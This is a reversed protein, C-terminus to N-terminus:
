NKKDNFLDAFNRPSILEESGWSKVAFVKLIERATETYNEIRNEDHIYNFWGNKIASKIFYAFASANMNVRIPPTQALNKEIAIIERNIEELPKNYNNVYLRNSSNKHIIICREMMQIANKFPMKNGTLTYIRDIPKYFENEWKTNGTPLIKDDIELHVKLRIYGHYFSKSNLCDELITSFIRLWKLKSKVSKNNLYANICATKANGSIFNASLFVAWDEEKAAKQSSSLNSM